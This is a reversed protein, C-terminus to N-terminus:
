PPPWRRGHGVPGPPVPLTVVSRLFARPPRKKHTRERESKPWVRFIGMLKFMTWSAQADNICDHEIAFVTIPTPTFLEVDSRSILLAILEDEIVVQDHLLLRRLPASAAFCAGPSRCGALGSSLIDLDGSSRACAISRTRSVM